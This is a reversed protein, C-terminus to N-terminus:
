EDSEEDDEDSEEESDEDDDGKYYKIGQWTFYIVGLFFGLFIAMFIGISVLQGQLGDSVAPHPAGDCRLRM